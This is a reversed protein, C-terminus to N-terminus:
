HEGGPSWPAKYDFLFFQSTDANAAMARPVWSDDHLDMDADNECMGGFPSNNLGNMMPGQGQILFLTHHELTGIWPAPAIPSPQAGDASRRVECGTGDLAEYVGGSRGGEVRSLGYDLLYQGCAAVDEVGFVLSDPGLIKM